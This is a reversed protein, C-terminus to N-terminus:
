RQGAASAPSALQSLAEGTALRFRMGHVPCFIYGNRTRGDALPQNQHACRNEVAVYDGASNCVLVSRGAIEVAVSSNEPLDAVPVTTLFATM